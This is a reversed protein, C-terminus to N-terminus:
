RIGVGKIARFSISMSNLRLCYKITLFVIFYVFYGKYLYSTRPKYKIRTELMNSM